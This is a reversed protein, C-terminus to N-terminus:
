RLISSSSGTITNLGGPAKSVIICGHLGLFELHTTRHNTDAAVQPTEFRTTMRRMGNKTLIEWRTFLAPGLDWPKRRTMYGDTKKIVM